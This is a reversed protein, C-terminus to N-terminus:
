TRRSIRREGFFHAEPHFDSALDRETAEQSYQAAAQRALDRWAPSTLDSGRRWWRPESLPVYLLAVTDKQGRRSVVVGWSEEAGTGRLALRVDFPGVPRCPTSLTGLAVSDRDGILWVDSTAVEGALAEGPREVVETNPLLSRQIFFGLPEEQPLSPDTVRAAVRNLTEQSLCLLPKDQRM